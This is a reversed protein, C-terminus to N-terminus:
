CIPFLMAAKRIIVEPSIFRAKKNSLVSKRDGSSGKRTTNKLLVNARKSRCVDTGEEMIFILFSMFNLM